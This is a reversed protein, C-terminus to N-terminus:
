VRTFAPSSSLCKSGADGSACLMNDATAEAPTKGQEDIFQTIQNIVTTGENFIGFFLPYIHIMNNDSIFTVDVGDQKAKEVVRSADDYLM